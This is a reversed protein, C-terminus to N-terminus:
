QNLRNWLSQNMDAASFSFIYRSNQEIFTLQVSTDSCDVAIQEFPIILSEQHEEQVPILYLNRKSFSFHVTLKQQVSGEISRLSGSM